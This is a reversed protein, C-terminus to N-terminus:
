IYASPLCHHYRQKDHHWFRAPSLHLCNYEPLLSLHSSDSKKDSTVEAVHLCVDSLSEVRSRYCMMVGVSGDTCRRHASVQHVIWILDHITSNPLIRIQDSIPKFSLWIRTIKIKEGFFHLIEFLSVDCKPAYKSYRNFPPSARRSSYLCIHHQKCTHDMDSRM